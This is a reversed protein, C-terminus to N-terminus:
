EEDELALGIAITLRPAMLELEAQSLKTRNETIRQLPNGLSVPM